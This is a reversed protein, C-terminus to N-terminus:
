HLGTPNDARRKVHPRVLEIGLKVLFKRKKSRKKLGSNDPNNAVWFTYANVAAVDVMNCFVVM